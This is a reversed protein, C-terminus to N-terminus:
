KKADALVPSPPTIQVEMNKPVYVVFTVNEKFDQGKVKLQKQMNPAEIVLVNADTKANLNYRGINALENLMPGNGTPLSVSIEFRVSPNDWVKLDVEGPLELRLLDKGDTNFARTFTKSATTQGGVSCVSLMLLVFAISISKTTM